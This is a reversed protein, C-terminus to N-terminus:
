LMSPYDMIILSQPKPNETWVNLIRWKYGNNLTEVNIFSLPKRGNFSDIEEEYPETLIKVAMQERYPVTTGAPYDKCDPNTFCIRYSNDCPYVIKGINSM